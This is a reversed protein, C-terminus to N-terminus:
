GNVVESLGSLDSEMDTEIEDVTGSPVGAQRNQIENKLKTVYIIEETKYAIGV